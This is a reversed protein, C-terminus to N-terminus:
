SLERIGIGDAFMKAQEAFWSGQVNIELIKEVPNVNAAAIRLHIEYVDPPLLHSLTAPEVEVDLHLITRDKPVGELRDIPAKPDVIRGLDCHKGMKPNIEAFITPTNPNVGHAWRLNMPLFGEVERFIGDAHRKLLKAAYVQVSEARQNGVNEIWIRFYFCDFEITKEHLTGQEVATTRIFLPTKNCDPARLRVSAALKPSRWKRVLEEKFLAVVVAISTATAGAWQALTGIDM